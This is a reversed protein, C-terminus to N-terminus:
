PARPLRAIPVVDLGACLEWVRRARLTWLDMQRIHRLDFAGRDTLVRHYSVDHEYRTAVMRTVLYFETKRWFGVIKPHYAMPRDIEITIPENLREREM